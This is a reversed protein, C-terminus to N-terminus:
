KTILRLTLMPFKLIFWLALKVFWHSLVVRKLNYNLFVNVFNLIGNVSFKHNLIDTSKDYDWVILQRLCTGHKFLFLRYHWLLHWKLSIQLPEKGTKTHIKASIKGIVYMDIKLKAYIRFFKSATAILSSRATESCVNTKSVDCFWSVCIYSRWVLYM